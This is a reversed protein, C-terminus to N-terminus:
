QDTVLRVDAATLRQRFRVGALFTGARSPRCWRVVAPGGVPGLRVRPWFMVEFEEGVAALLKLRVRAGGESVDVSGAALNPGVGLPGRRVEVRVGPRAPRRPESRREGVEGAPGPADPDPLIPIPEGCCVPWTARALQRIEDTTRRETRGCAACRLVRCRTGAPVPATDPSM